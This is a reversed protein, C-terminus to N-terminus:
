ASRTEFHNTLTRPSFTLLSSPSCLLIQATPNTLITAALQGLSTLVDKRELSVIKRFRSSV